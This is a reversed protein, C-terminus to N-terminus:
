GNVEAELQLISDHREAAHEFDLNESAELMERHRQAILDRKQDDTLYKVIPDAIANGALVVEGVDSNATNSVQTQLIPFWGRNNSVNDLSTRKQIRFSKRLDL